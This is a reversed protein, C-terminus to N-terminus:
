TFTGYSKQVFKARKQDLCLIKISNGFSEADNKSSFSVFCTIKIWFGLIKGFIRVIGGLDLFIYFIWPKRPVGTARHLGRHLGKLLGETPGKIPWTGGSHLRQPDM